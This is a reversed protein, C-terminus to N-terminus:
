VVSTVVNTTLRVDDLYIVATIEKEVFNIIIIKM